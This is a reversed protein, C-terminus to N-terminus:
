ERVKASPKALIALGFVVLAVAFLPFGVNALDAIGAILALAGLIVTFVNMALGRVRRVGNLALLIVGTGVLWSGSPVIRAFLWLLGTMVLFLGWGVNDLWSAFERRGRDTDPRATDPRSTTAM